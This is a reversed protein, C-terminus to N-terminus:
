QQAPQPQSAPDQVPALVQQIGAAYLNSPDAQHPAIDSVPDPARLIEAILKRVVPELGEDSLRDAVAKLRDSEAKFANIEADTDKDMRVALHNLAEMDLRQKQLQHEVTKDALAQQLHAIAQTAQQLQQQLQVVQPPPGDGILGPNIADIWKRLREQLKDANPFDAAAMYLDGIVSALQENGHLLNTMQDFAEKRRTEYNPGVSAVVDYSGVAPNFIAAVKADEANEHQKLAQKAQPDIQIAQEEGSEAMIRIVRRTDYIKPILDILQKGTYRMAKAMSDQYHFTVREGQKQRQDIAVGSVENGQASFTAEYQGSAMMLEHEAAQMGEMYVPASAPPQQRQPMPIQNGQEDAHNWPLYAHNQTNATKWYDELGEIAEVAAMYPSKSQLAGFELAASANYNYARQADKLYRVLGKRELKGELTIEEGPVRIIPIYKGAWESKDIVSNGAILYRNVTWKSVRRRQARGDSLAKELMEVGLDPMSSERALTVGSDDGEIAYLWEKTEGREYYEAIRVMDSRYWGQAGSSMSDSGGNIKKGYKRDADERPMDDFVIGWKADSGEVTKIDCDLVVSLPDRVQRIFIEQDFSEDDQYDTVIRWYGMGGGVQFESAKDYATQADSIYEIRRVIQEMIQASEYTAQDGTPSVSIQPKNEKGQNVVHLWHTHTKNITVMPQGSLSREARVTAPWQEQNDSDALVFRMDDKFFQRWTSEWEMARDFRKQARDVIDKNRDAM